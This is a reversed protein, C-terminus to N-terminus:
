QDFETAYEESSGENAQEIARFVLAEMENWTRDWSSRALLRDVRERWGNARYSPRQCREIAEVFSSPSDAIEVLGRDGYDSMVDAIPTSVVPLGAALYEPTKTLSIFRTSENLAFPLIAVDWAAMYRPIEGYAKAGLYHINASRPLDSESIKAIPGVMVFHWEPRLAATRALLELDAREDIVGCFGIRPHPIAIQDAAGDLKHRATAFHTLDISSPFCHVAPHLHKKAEYLSRGGTFVLDAVQLLEAEADRLGPPAGRFATLEDMCDYVIAAPRLQQTFKRAMPTYYWLVYEEICFDRLLKQLLTAQAAFADRQELGLPLEPTAVVLSEGKEEIRVTPRPTDRYVPEECFFVRSNRSCRSLLHQPRQYAFDWRLHSFALFDMEM